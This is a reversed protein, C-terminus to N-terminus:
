TNDLTESYRLIVMGMQIKKGLPCLAAWTNYMDDRNQAESIDIDHGGQVRDM